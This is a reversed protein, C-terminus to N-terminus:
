AQPALTENAKQGKIAGSHDCNQIVLDEFLVPSASIGWGTDTTMMGFSHKWALKGEFDYCFIGPTGFFAYVHTDDVACSPSAYGNMAHTRGAEVGKSVTQKWLIEGTTVRLCILYREDGNGSAATVFIRDGSVAPTSNGAGPLKTKWLLNETDSWTLPVKDDQFHGQGSPGRLQIPRGGGPGAAIAM